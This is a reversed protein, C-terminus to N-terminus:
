WEVVRGRRGRRGGSRGRSGGTQRHGGGRVGVRERQEPETKKKRVETDDDRRTAQNQCMKM